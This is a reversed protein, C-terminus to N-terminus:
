PVPIGRSDAISFGIGKLPLARHHRHASPRPQTQPLDIKGIIQCKINQHRNNKDKSSKPHNKRFPM